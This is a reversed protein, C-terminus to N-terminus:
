AYQFLCTFRLSYNWKRGRRWFFFGFFCQLRNVTLWSSSRPNQATTQLNHTFLFCSKLYLWGLISRLHSWPRRYQLVCTCTFRKWFSAVDASCKTYWFQKSHWLLVFAVIQTCLMKQLYESSVIKIFLSCDDDYQPNTSAFILAESM